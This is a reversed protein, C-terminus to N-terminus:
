SAMAKSPMDTESMVMLTGSGDNLFAEIWVTLSPDM